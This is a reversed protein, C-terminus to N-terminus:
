LNFWLFQLSMMYVMIGLNLTLKIGGCDRIQKLEKFIKSMMDHYDQLKEQKSLCSDFPYYKTYSLTWVESSSWLCNLLSFNVNIQTIRPFFSWGFYTSLIFICIVSPWMQGKPRTSLDADINHVQLIYYLGWADVELHKNVDWLIKTRLRWVNTKILFECFTAHLRNTVDFLSVVLEGIWSNLTSYLPWFRKM